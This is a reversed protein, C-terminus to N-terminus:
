DGTHLARLVLLISYSSTLTVQNMSQLWKMILIQCEPSQRDLKNIFWRSGLIQPKQVIEAILAEATKQSLAQLKSKLADFLTENPSTQPLTLGGMAQTLLIDISPHSISHNSLQDLM